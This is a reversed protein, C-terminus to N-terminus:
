VPTRIDYVELLFEYREVIIPHFLSLQYLCLLLGNSMSQILKIKIVIIKDRRQRPCLFLFTDAFACFYSCLVM